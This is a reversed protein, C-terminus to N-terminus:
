RIREPTPTRVPAQGDQCPHHGEEFFYKNAKKFKGNVFFGWPRKARGTILFTWAPKIVKVMHAHDAPRYRIIGPTMREITDFNGTYHNYTYDTNSYQIKITGDSPTDGPVIDEYEGWIVFTIFWWAHNHVHRQDDSALWHHVRLSFLGFNLVWRVLYPCKEIGLEEGWTIFKM